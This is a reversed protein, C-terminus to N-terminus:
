EEYRTYDRVRRAAWVAGKADRVATAGTDPTLLVVDKAGFHKDLVSRPVTDADDADDGGGDVLLLAEAVLMSVFVIAGDPVHFEAPVPALRYVARRVAPVGEVVDGCVVAEAEVLRGAAAYVAKTAADTVVGIVVDSEKLKPADDPDSAPRLYIAHPTLNVARAVLDEHSAAKATRAAKAPPPSSSPSSSAMRNYSSAHV